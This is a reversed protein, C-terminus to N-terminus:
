WRSAAHVGAIANPVSRSAITEITLSVDASEGLHKQFSQFDPTPVQELDLPRTDVRHRAGGRSAMGTKSATDLMAAYSRQAGKARPDLFRSV